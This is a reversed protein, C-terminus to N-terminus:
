VAGFRRQERLVAFGISAQIVMGFMMIAGFVLTLESSNTGGVIFVLAMVIYAVQAFFTVITAANGGGVQEEKQAMYMWPGLAAGYSWILLPWFTDSAAEDMFLFFVFICWVTIVVCIYVHSLALFPFALVPREKDILLGGPLGFLLGGASILGLLPTALLAVIGYGIAWWEGLIALWIGSVIEGFFNLLILPVITAKVLTPLAKNTLFDSVAHGIGAQESAGAASVNTSSGKFLLYIFLMLNVMPIVAIYALRKRHGTDRVRRVVVRLFVVQLVISGIMLTLIGVLLIPESAYSLLGLSVEIFLASLMVALTWVFFRRRRVRKATNETRVAILLIGIILILLLMQWIGVTVL